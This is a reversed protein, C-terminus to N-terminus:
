KLRVRVMFEHGDRCRRHVELVGDIEKPPHVEADLRDEAAAGCEPCNTESVDNKVTDGQSSLAANQQLPEFLILQSRLLAFRQATVCRVAM